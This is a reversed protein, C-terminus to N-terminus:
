MKMEPRYEKFDVERTNVWTKIAGSYKKWANGRCRRLGCTNLCLPAQSPSFNRSLLSKITANKKNEQHHEQDSAFTLRCGEICLNYSLGTSLGLPCLRILIGIRRSSIVESSRMRVLLRRLWATM